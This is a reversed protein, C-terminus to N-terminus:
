AIMGRGREYYKNILEKLLIIIFPGIIIGWIGYIVVGLYLSFITLIPHIHLNEGVFKIEMIKRSVGLLIYLLILGVAAFIENKAFEYIIMPIFILSTGIVPMIDLIGCIFGITLPSSVGLIYLGLVTEITTVFVLEFEVRLITINKNVVNYIIYFLDSPLYRKLAKIIKNLDMSMFITTMFILIIYVFGNVTSIITTLIKSKYSPLIGELANIMHIFNLEEIKLFRFKNSLIIMIDPLKNIFFTIQNYIYNGLYYFSVISCICMILFGTIVSLKRNLGMRIFFKVFPELILVLLVSVVFPWLFVLCVKLLIMGIIIVSIIKLMAQNKKIM